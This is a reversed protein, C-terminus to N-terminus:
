IDLLRCVIILVVGLLMVLLTLEPHELWAMRPHWRWWRGDNRGRQGGARGSGLDGRDGAGNRWFHPIILPAFSRKSTKTRSAGGGLVGGRESACALSVQCSFTSIRM